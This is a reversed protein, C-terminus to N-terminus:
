LQSLQVMFFASLQLISAKSSHHQLLSMLTGQVALLDFWDIKLSILGLYENSPSTSFSCSRYKPWRIHVASENSFNRISSFISLLLPHWFILHSSPMVSTISMFKPLSWSITLPLSAQHETTWPTAFLRVHSPSQVVVIANHKCIVLYTFMFLEPGQLLSLGTLSVIFSM